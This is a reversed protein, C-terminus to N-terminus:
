QYNLVNEWFSPHDLRMLISPGSLTADPTRHLLGKPGGRFVSVDWVNMFQKAAPDKVIRENPEGNAFARRDAAEDPLWETGAGAYTVLLRMPVNDIHYRRCGRESGIWFGVADTGQTNCFTGCVEAMDEVWRSYFPDSKIQPPLAEDLLAEIDSELHDKRVTGAVGFPEQMLTEFFSEAEQPRERHLIGLQEPRQRFGTLENLSAARFISM